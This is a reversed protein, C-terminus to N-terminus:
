VQAPGQQQQQQRWLRAEDPGQWASVCGTQQSHLHTHMLTHPPSHSTPPRHHPSSHKFSLTKVCFFSVCASLHGSRCQWSLSAALHHPHPSTLLQGHGNVVGTNSPWCVVMHTHRVRALTCPVRRRRGLVGVCVWSPSWGLLTNNRLVPASQGLQM